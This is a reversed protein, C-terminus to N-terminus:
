LAPPGCVGGEHSAPGVAAGSALLVSLCPRLVVACLLPHLFSRPQHRLCSHLLLHMPLYCPLMRPPPAAAAPTSSGVAPYTPTTMEIATDHQVDEAITDGLPQSTKRPSRRGDAAALEIEKAERMDEENSSDAIDSLAEFSASAATAAAAAAERRRRLAWGFSLLCAAGAVANGSNFLWM